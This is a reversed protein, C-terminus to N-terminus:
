IQEVHEKPKHLNQLRHVSTLVQLELKCLKDFTHRGSQWVVELPASYIGM